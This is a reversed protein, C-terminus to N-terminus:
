GAMSHRDSGASKPRGSAGYSRFWEVFRRLGEEIGTTPEFGFDAKIADINAYTVPVDEAQMPVLETIAKRGIITELTAIMDLLPVARHNGINYISRPPPTASDAVALVGTVVDDIFTFDRSMNGHNFVKIPEGRLIADTFLWYAMDPRGWPGYVTFFRLGVQPVGYLNAYVRSMMEDAKKTAAYLSAPQDTVDDEAFPVRSEPGYVSSSSAYVLRQLSSSHRCYELVNLHGAVNSAVYAHPNESAYRVNAQAALHIVLPVIMGTLASPLAGKEALDVRKFAFNPFAALEALRRRKLEVDYYDNLNDIGVVTDGRKALCRAVHYGIFGAAGTVVTAM